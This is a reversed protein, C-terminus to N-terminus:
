DGKLDVVLVHDYTRVTLRNGKRTIREPASPLKLREIV